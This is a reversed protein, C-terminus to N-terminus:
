VPDTYYKQVIEVQPLVGLPVSFSIKIVGTYIEGENGGVSRSDGIITGPTGPYLIMDNVTVITDGINTAMYGNCNTVVRVFQSKTYINTAINYNRLIQM